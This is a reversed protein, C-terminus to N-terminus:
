QSGHLHIQLPPSPPMSTNTMRFRSSAQKHAANVVGGLVGSWVSPCIPTPLGAHAAALAGRATLTAVSDSSSAIPLPGDDDMSADASFPSAEGRDKTLDTPFVPHVSKGELYACALHMFTRAYEAALAGWGHFKHTM